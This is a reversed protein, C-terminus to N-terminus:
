KMQRSIVMMATPYRKLLFFFYRVVGPKFHVALFIGAKCSAPRSDFSRILDLLSGKAILSLLSLIPGAVEELLLVTGM